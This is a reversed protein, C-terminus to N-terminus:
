APPTQTTTTPAPTSPQPAAATTEASTTSPAAAPLSSARGDTARGVFALLALLAVATITLNRWSWLPWRLVRGLEGSM